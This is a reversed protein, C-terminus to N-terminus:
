PDTFLKSTWGSPPNITDNRCHFLMGFLKLNPVQFFSNKALSTHDYWLYCRMKGFLLSRQVSASVVHGYPFLANQLRRSTTYFEYPTQHTLDDYLITRVNVVVDRRILFSFLFLLRMWLSSLMRMLQPPILNFPPTIKEM